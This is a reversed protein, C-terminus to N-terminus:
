RPRRLLHDRARNLQAALYPSGGHDPHLRAMLKRHAAKIEAEGAGTALGLIELATREDMAGGSPEPPAAAEAHWDPFRRDLYAQLLPVSPPDERGAEDLLRLLDGLGLGGLERGALSGRKVRGEVEGTGHDLRMTLLDTEISSESGGAAADRMPDAGRPGQVLARVAMATAALTVLALGFRGTFLLGTSALASFAAAFTKLAHAIDRPSTTAFGRLLLFLLGMAGLGLAAYAMM